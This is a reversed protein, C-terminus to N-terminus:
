LCNKKLSHHKGNEVDLFDAILRMCDADYLTWGPGDFDIFYCYGRFGNAGYWKITGIDEGTRKNRVRWRRTVGTPSTGNEAIEIYKEVRKQSM